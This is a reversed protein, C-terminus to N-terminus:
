GYSAMLMLATRGQSDVKTPYGQEKMTSVSFCTKLFVSPALLMQLNWVRVTKDSSGTYLFSGHAHLSRIEDNHAIMVEALKWDACNWASITGDKLGAYFRDTHVTLGYVSCQTHM